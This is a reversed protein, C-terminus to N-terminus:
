TQRVALRSRASFLAPLSPVRIVRIFGRIFLILVFSHIRDSGRRDQRENEEDAHWQKEGM